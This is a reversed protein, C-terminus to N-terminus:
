GFKKKLRDYEAKEELEYALASIKREDDWFANEGHSKRVECKALLQKEAQERFNRKRDREIEDSSRLDFARIGEHSMKGDGEKAPSKSRLYIVTNRL